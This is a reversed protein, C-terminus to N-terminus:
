QLRQYDEAAYLVIEEIVSNDEGMRESRLVGTSVETPRPHKLNMVTQSGDMFTLLMGEVAVDRNDFKTGALPEYWEFIMDKSAIFRQWFSQDIEDTLAAVRAAMTFGEWGKIEKDILHDFMFQAYQAQTFASLRNWQQGWSIPYLMYAEPVTLDNMVVWMSPRGPLNAAIVIFGYLNDRSEPFNHLLGSMGAADVLGRLNGQLGQETLYWGASMLSQDIRLYVSHQM